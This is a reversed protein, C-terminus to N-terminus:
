EGEAEETWREPRLTPFLIVERISLRGTLIMVLRDIGIGEGATPPMGYALARVYDHDFYMSEDNGADREKVQDMFRGAQDVPDNLETFANGIEWTACYIEFRDTRDPDGDTRRALPSIEAPFGTVFTPQILTGEVYEEFLKEWWRGFTAPLKAESPPRQTRYWAAIAAPNRLDARSLGTKESILEDMDARRFPPSFDINMEGFVVKPSGNVAVALQHLLTETLAILDEYTAWAQYFELTTFEPNHRTSVGENRFNRNIEFVRDFGGVVLRKLYLEPAIRLYLDIDLTNHHTVFPRATAGGPIAQMMPTEVELYDRAQFFDRIFRVVQSRKRFTDRSEPNIFLDVYRQRSRTEVDTVAHWRDPFPALIKAALRIEKVHLSIEGTKTRMLSGRAWLFDGIDVKKIQEFVAEGVEDRKVYWQLVGGRKVPTGERDVDDVLAEGRDQIRLFMAKGMHNRFMVRGGVAIGSEPTLTSPDEVGVALQFLQTSTHTIPMEAASPFPDQGAARMEALKELWKPDFTYM